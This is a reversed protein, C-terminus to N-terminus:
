SPSTDNLRRLLRALEAIDAADWSALQARLRERRGDFSRELAELGEATMRVQRARADDPDPIREILGLEELTALNRSTTSKHLRLVESIDGGRAGGGSASLDRVTV